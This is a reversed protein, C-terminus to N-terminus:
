DSEIQGSRETIRDQPNIYEFWAWIQFLLESSVSAIGGIPGGGGAAEDLDKRSLIKKNRYKNQKM